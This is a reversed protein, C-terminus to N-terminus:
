EIRQNSPINKRSQLLHLLGHMSKCLILAVFCGSLLSCYFSISKCFVPLTFFSSSMAKSLASPHRIKGGILSTGASKKTTIKESVSEFSSLTQLKYSSFSFSDILSRSCCFADRLFLPPHKLANCYTSRQVFPHSSFSDHSQETEPLPKETRRSFICESLYFHNLKPINRPALLTTELHDM